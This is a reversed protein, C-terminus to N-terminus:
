PLPVTFLVTGDSAAYTLLPGQAATPFDMEFWAELSGHAALTAARLAPSRGGVYGTFTSRDVSMGGWAAPDVSWSGAGALYRVRIEVRETQGMAFPDMEVVTVTGRSIGGDVIRVAEGRSATLPSATPVAPTLTAPATTPPLLATPPETTDSALSDGTPLSTFAAATQRAAAGTAGSPLEHPESLVLLVAVTVLLGVSPGILRWDPVRRTSFRREQAPALRAPAPVLFGLAHTQM